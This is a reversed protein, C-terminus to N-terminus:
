LYERIEGHEWFGSKMYRMEVEEFVEVTKTIFFGLKRFLAISADNKQSIRAVFRMQNRVPLPSHDSPPAHTAYALMLSAATHALHQRRFEKEAIMIEVEVEFDEDGEKGKFFLNVDGAMPLARLAEDTLEGEDAPLRALIIFTLKDDDEAWTRQMAYEEDLTLPESATQEQLEPDQMWENYKPVHEKRYPVLVVRDSVIAINQNARM